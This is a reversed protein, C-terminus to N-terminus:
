RQPVKKDLRAEDYKTQLFAVKERRKIEKLAQALLKEEAPTLPEISRAKHKALLAAALRASHDADHSLEALYFDAAAGFAQRAYAEITVM